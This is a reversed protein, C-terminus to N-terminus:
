TSTKHGCIWKGKMESTTYGTPATTNVGVFKNGVYVIHSTEMNLAMVLKSKDTPSIEKLVDFM